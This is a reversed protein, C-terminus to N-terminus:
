RRGDGGPRSPRESLLQVLAVLPAVVMLGAMLWAFLPLVGVQTARSWPLFAVVAVLVLAALYWRDGRPM